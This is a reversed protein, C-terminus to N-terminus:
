QFRFILVGEANGSGPVADVDVRLLDNESLNQHAAVPAEDEAYPNTADYAVSLNSSFLDVAATANHVMLDTSGSTGGTDSMSFFAGLFQADRDLRYHILGDGPAAPVKIFLSVTFHSPRLEGEDTTVRTFHTIDSGTPVVPRVM